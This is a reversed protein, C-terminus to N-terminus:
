LITSSLGPHKEEGGAIPTVRKTVDIKEEAKRERGEAKV